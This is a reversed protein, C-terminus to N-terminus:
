SAQNYWGLEDRGDGDWDGVVPQGSQSGEPLDFQDDAATVERDGDSDIIVRNGRIVGVEDIGDGDFDGVIPYDGPQGFEFREEGSKRRGDGEADLMWVGARFIGIQDIGDGNWDGSIPTDVDEGYQFVHDVADARLSGDEGHRLMRRCDEPRTEISVLGLTKQTELYRRWRNSPDPLGADTKIRRWDREWKRGFIGIDDKGDGDWDGVVPRDMETGLLIWLDGEDWVGNGNMDVYWHGEVYIAVEDDGDGNFDGALAIADEAGLEFTESEQRVQGDITLLTWRGKDKEHREDQADNDSRMAVKMFADRSAVQGRPHGGNIVSLHWTVFDVEGLIPAPLVREPATVPYVPEPAVFEEFPPPEIFEPEPAPPKLITLPPPPPPLPPPPPPPPPSSLDIEVESFFNESSTQGAKVTVGLIADFDKAPAVSKIWFLQSEDYEDAANVALGGTSGPTDISDILSDSSPQTQSLVYTGPRLGKFQFVGDQNTLVVSDAVANGSLFADDTLPLGFEDLITIRVGNLRTDDTTLQGDKYERLDEPSILETTEIAAGDVFVVGSIEAPPVEPFDYGVGTLGAHVQINILRDDGSPQGGLNGVIQGGQFYGEPQEEQIEYVGRDLGTFKYRGNLDTKTTQVVVGADDILKVTVEAIPTENEDYRQNENDDSWVTGSLTAPEYECFMYDVASEGPTLSVSMLDVGLVAGGASGLVQGGQFFGEPQVEFIKYEGGRLGVFQYNGMADTTTTAVVNGTADRLEIVVGEIGREFPSRICDGDNDIHVSGSLSSPPEECFDYDFADVGSGLEIGSVQNVGVVGGVTGATVGGDFFAEPQVEVVTYRGPTLGFFRYTGDISTQTTRVVTGSEDLLQITVGNLGVEDPDRICDGDVDLHVHGGISAPLLEGFNYEVGSMGQPIAIQSIRDNGATGVTQGGITGARDIGDLYGSPQQEILTYNGPPLSEFQYFGNSDTQTTAVTNGSDDVLSISAGAIGEEGPDRTGEFSRDHYVYGSLTVPAIECFHYDTGVGGPTMTIQRIVTGDLAQGMSVGDITGAYSAGDLLGDPTYQVIRYQGPVVDGFHYVGMPTTTVRSIVNGDPTQLEVIVGGLPEALSPDYTPYCAEGPNALYVLGSIEGTELEGFNYEVGVDGGDLNIARIADGNTDAVGVTVSNVTGATDKGDILGAPQTVEFIEYTGPSLNSVYYSGDSLTVTTVADQDGVTVVPVIRITVGAIGTEGAERIGNDNNDRYVYGGISAAEAEAFNMEVADSDGLPIEISSLVDLGIASGTAIGEVRGPIAAVSFLGSPQTELIQYNGPMLGLSRDFSYHGGADTRVRYGTDKYQGSNDAALLTLEVDALGAEGPQWVSDLNNDLWVSGSISIPKPTQTLELVAAASRNPRSNPGTGDDDPLELGYTDRPSGYNNLFIADATTPEYHPAEFFAELISDQFEQGSTIVDLRDNFEDLDPLNRLVEDVDITFELRDGARFNTLDLILEQGGDVVTAKATAVRGDTTEIKLIQFDHWQQKGRGGEATDFIPDGVSIGDGDKDTRIRVQNLTTGDAGGNFTLLFKDGKSDGGVDNDSELYDTELYVVGVHIPDAAFLERRELVQPRAPRRLRKKNLNM